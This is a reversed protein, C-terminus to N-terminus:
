QLRCVQLRSTTTLRVSERRAYMGPHSTRATPKPYSPFSRSHDTGSHSIWLVDMALLLTATSRRHQTPRYRTIDSRSLYTGHSLCHYRSSIDQYSAEGQQSHKLIDGDCPLLLQIPFAFWTVTAGTRFTRHRPRWPPLGLMTRHSHNTVHSSNGKRSGYYATGRSHV